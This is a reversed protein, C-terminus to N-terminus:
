SSNHTPLTGKYIQALPLALSLSRLELVTEPGSYVRSRWKEARRFVTVTPESQELLLFEEISAVRRYTSSKERLDIYRTPPSLVEAVLKPNCVWDEDWQEPNCAVMLDPIYQIDDTDSRIQLNVGTGFVECPGGRLHAEIAVLLKQAIRGHAVSPGTM